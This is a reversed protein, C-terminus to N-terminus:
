GMLLKRLRIATIKRQEEAANKMETSRDNPLRARLLALMQEASKGTACVIFIFGFKELYAQNDQALAWLMQESAAAVSSQEGAALIKTDAYRERLTALNGIQPHAAFAELLDAETMTAWARDAAKEVEALDFFPRLDAMQRAWAGAACCRSFTEIAQQQSLQNLEDLTM